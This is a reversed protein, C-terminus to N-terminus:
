SAFVAAGLDTCAVVRAGTGASRMADCASELGELLGAWVLASPVTRVRWATAGDALDGLARTADDGVLHVNGEADEVVAGDIGLGFSRIGAIPDHSDGRDLDLGEGTFRVVADGRLAVETSESSTPWSRLLGRRRVTPSTEILALGTVGAEREARLLTRVLEHLATLEELGLTTDAAGSMSADRLHRLCREAADTTSIQAAQAAVVLDDLLRPTGLRHATSLLNEGAISSRPANSAALHLSTSSTGVVQDLQSLM